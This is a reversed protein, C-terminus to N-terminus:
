KNMLFVWVIPVCVIFSVILVVVWTPVNPIGNILVRKRQSVAEKPLPPEFAVEQRGKCGERWFSRPYCEAVGRQREEDGSNGDFFWSHEINASALAVGQQPDWIELGGNGSSAERILFSAALPTTASFPALLPWLDDDYSITADEKKTSNDGEKAGSDSSKLQHAAAAVAHGHGGASANLVPEDDMDAERDERTSLLFMRRRSGDDTRRRRNHYITLVRDPYAVSKFRVYGSPSLVIKWKAEKVDKSKVRAPVHREATLFGEEITHLGLYPMTQNHANVFRIAHEGLDNGKSGSACVGEEDACFGEKCFCRGDNCVTPGRDTSCGAM